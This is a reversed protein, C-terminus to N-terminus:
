NEYFPHFVARKNKREWKPKQTKACINFFLQNYGLSVSFEYTTKIKLFCILTIHYCTLCVTLWQLKITQENDNDTHHVVTSINLAGSQKNQLFLKIWSNRLNFLHKRQVLTLVVVNKKPIIGYLTHRLTINWM